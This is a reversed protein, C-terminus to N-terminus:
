GALDSEVILHPVVTPRISVSLCGLSIYKSESEKNFNISAGIGTFQTGVGVSYSINESAEINHSTFLALTLLLTKNM